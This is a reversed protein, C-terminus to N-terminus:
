FQVRLSFELYRATAGPAQGSITGEPDVGPKASSGGLVNGNPGGANIHNFANFADMRFKVAVSEWVDFGKTIAMDANFFNPGFYTGNRRKRLEIETGPEKREREPEASM